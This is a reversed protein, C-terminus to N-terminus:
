SMCNGLVIANTESDQAIFTEYDCTGWVWTNAQDDFGCFMEDDCTGWVYSNTKTNYGDCPASNSWSPNILISLSLILIMLIIKMCFGIALIKKM